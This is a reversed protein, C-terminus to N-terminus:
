NIKEKMFLIHALLYNVSVKALLLLDFV